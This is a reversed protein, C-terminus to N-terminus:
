GQSSAWAAGIIGAENRLAAPVIEANVDVYRLFRDAKKSVGGGVIILDPWFLRDLMRFYRNLRKGWRKWTLEKDLRVKDSAQQEADRGRLELHGLETNPLLLGDHFLASGIGTGLTVVIVTGARGKGAGYAIEALGAADADNLVVFERGTRQEFLARADVGVWSRHVNAATMVVGDKVVAPFTCGIRGQSEFRSVLDVVVDAVAHPTSPHPTLVRQRAAALAGEGVDVTAGKIGTGGIDIGLLQM